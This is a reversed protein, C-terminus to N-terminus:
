SFRLVINHLYGSGDESYYHREISTLTRTEPRPSLIEVTASSEIDVPVNDTADVPIPWVYATLAVTVEEGDANRVTTTSDDILCHYSRINTGTVPKGYDDYGTGASTVKVLHPMLDTFEDVPQTM